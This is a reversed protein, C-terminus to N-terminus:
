AEASTKPTNPCIRRRILSKKSPGCPRDIENLGALKAAALAPPPAFGVAAFRVKETIAAGPLRM